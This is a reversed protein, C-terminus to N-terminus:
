RITFLSSYIIYIPGLEIVKKHNHGAVSWSGCQRCTDMSSIQLRVSDVGRLMHDHPQFRCRSCCECFSTNHWTTESLSQFSVCGMFVLAVWGCLSEEPVLPSPLCLPLRNLHFISMLVSTTTKQLAPLIDALWRAQRSLPSGCMSASILRPPHFLHRRRTQKVSTVKKKQIDGGDNSSPRVSQLVSQQALPVAVFKTFKPGTLGSIKHSMQMPSSLMYAWICQANNKFTM